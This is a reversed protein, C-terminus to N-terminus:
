SINVYGRIEIRCGYFYNLLVILDIKFHGPHGDYLITNYMYVYMMNRFYESIKRYPYIM